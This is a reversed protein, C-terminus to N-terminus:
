NTAISAEPAPFEVEISTPVRPHTLQAEFHADQGERRSTTGLARVVDHTQGCRDANLDM